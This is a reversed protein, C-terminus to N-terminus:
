RRLNHGKYGKQFKGSEGQVLVEIKPNRIKIM